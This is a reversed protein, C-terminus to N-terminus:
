DRPSPSTYLLCIEATIILSGQKVEADGIFENYGTTEDVMVSEAEIEIPQKADESLAFVFTSCFLTTLVILKNM